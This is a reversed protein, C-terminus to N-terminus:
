IVGRCSRREAFENLIEFSALIEFNQTGSDVM